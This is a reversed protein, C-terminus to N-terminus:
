APFPSDTKSLPVIRAKTMYSPLDEEKALLNFISLIKQKILKWIGPDKLLRDPLEDTGSAKRRSLASWADELESM